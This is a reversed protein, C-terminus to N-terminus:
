YDVENFRRVFRAYKPSFKSESPPVHLGTDIVVQVTKVFYLIYLFLDLYIMKRRRFIVQLPKLKQPLDIAKPSLFTGKRCEIWRTGLIDRLSYIVLYLPSMKM